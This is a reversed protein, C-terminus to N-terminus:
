MIEMAARVEAKAREYRAPTLMDISDLYFIVSDPQGRGSNVERVNEIEFLADVQKDSLDVEDAFFLAFKVGGDRLKTM